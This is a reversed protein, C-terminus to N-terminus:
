KKWNARKRNSILSKVNDNNIISEYNKITGMLQPMIDRFKRFYIPIDLQVGRKMQVSLMVKNNGETKTYYKYGSNQLVTDVWAIISKEAVDNIKEQKEEKAVFKEAETIIEPLKNVCARFRAENCYYGWSHVNHMVICLVKRSSRNTSSEEILKIYSSPNLYIAWGPRHGNEQYESKFGQFSNSQLETEVSEWNSKATTPLKYLNKIKDSLFKKLKNKVKYSYQITSKM